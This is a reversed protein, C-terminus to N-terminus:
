YDQCAEQLKTLGVDGIANRLKLSIELCAKYIAEGNRSDPDYGFNSAWDEFGNYNIVDADSVLSHVVDTFSPQLPKGRGMIHNIGEMVHAEYGNECEWAIAQDRMISHHSGLRRVSAKSSPCHGEGAGYDTTLIERGDRLLTVKWNLSRWRTDKGNRPKANRSKSFPVFVTTMTLKLEAAVREIVQQPTEIQTIDTM